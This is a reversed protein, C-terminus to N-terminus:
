LNSESNGDLNSYKFKKNAFRVFAATDYVGHCIMVAWLNYESIVFLVGFLVSLQAVIVM